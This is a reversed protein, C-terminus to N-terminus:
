ECIHLFILQWSPVKTLKSVNSCPSSFAFVYPQNFLLTLNPSSTSQCCNHLTCVCVCMVNHDFYIQQLVRRQWQFAILLTQWVWQTRSRKQNAREYWLGHCSSTVNKLSALGVIFAAVLINKKIIVVMEVAIYKKRVHLSTQSRSHCNLCIKGKRIRILIIINVQHLIQSCLYLGKCRQTQASM